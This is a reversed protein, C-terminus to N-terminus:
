HKRRDPGCQNAKGFALSSEPGRAAYHQATMKLISIRTSPHGEAYGTPERRPLM